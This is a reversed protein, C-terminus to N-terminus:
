KRHRQRANALEEQERQRQELEHLEVLTPWLADYRTRALEFARRRLQKGEVREGAVIHGNRVVAAVWTETTRAFFTRLEEGPLPTTLPDELGLKERLQRILAGDKGGANGRAFRSERTAAASIAAAKSGSHGAGREVSSRSSGDDNSDSSEDASRDSDHDENSGDADDDGSDDESEDGRWEHPRAADLCQWSNRERLDIRWHDDLTTERQRGEFMGGFVHLWHGDVWMSAKMRGAPGSSAEFKPSEPMAVSTPHVTTGVITTALQESSLPASSSIVNSTAASGGTASLLLPTAIVDTASGGNMVLPAATPDARVGGSTLPVHLDIKRSCTVENADDNDGDANADVRVLRGTEDVFYFANDEIVGGRVSDDGGRQLAIEDEDIDDDGGSGLSVADGDDGGGVVEFRINPESNAGIPAGKRRRRANSGQLTAARVELKYWRKRDIDYSHMDAFFTSVLTEGRTDGDTDAVGGFLIARDRYMALSFGQRPSPSAGVYRIREWSPTAAPNTILASLRLLWLDTHVIPRAKRSLLAAAAAAKAYAGGKGAAGASADRAGALASRSEDVGPKAESYGGYLLMVDRGPVTVLSHGSRPAPLLSTVPFVVESWQGLRTDLLWLDGYWRDSTTSLHFGGHLLVHSRWVAMRHGSRASPGKRSELRLWKNTTLELSWTDNYHYFQNETAFEGGMVIVRSPPLLVAQHSCRHPPTTPSTVLRWEGEGTGPTFRYLENFCINARGDYFEGGFLVLEGGSGLPTLSFNARASPRSVTSVVVATRKADNAQLTAIIKEIDEEPPEDGDRSQKGAKKRAGKSAKAAQAEAKRLKAAAKDKKDKGM